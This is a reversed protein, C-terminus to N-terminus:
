KTERTRGCRLDTEEACVVTCPAGESSLFERVIYGLQKTYCLKAKNELIVMQIIM